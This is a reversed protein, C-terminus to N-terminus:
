SSGRTLCRLLDDAVEAILPMRGAAPCEVKFDHVDDHHFSQLSEIILLEGPSRDPGRRVPAGFVGHGSEALRHGVGMDIGDLRFQYPNDQHHCSLAAFATPDLLFETEDLM